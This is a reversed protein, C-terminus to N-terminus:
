EELIVRTAIMRKYLPHPSGVKPDDKPTSLLFDIVREYQQNKQDFVTDRVLPWWDAASWCTCRYPLGYDCSACPDSSTREPPGSTPPIRPAPM